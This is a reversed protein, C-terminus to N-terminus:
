FFWSVYYAFTLNPQHLALWNAYRISVGSRDWIKFQYAEIDLSLNSKDLSTINPKWDPDMMFIHTMNAYYLYAQQLVNTRAQGFNTFNSIYIHHPINSPITQTLIQHTSDITRSDIAIVFANCFQHHTWLPLHKQLNEAEDRVIM